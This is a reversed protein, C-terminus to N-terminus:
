WWECHLTGNKWGPKDQNDKWIQDLSYQQFIHPSWRNGRKKVRILLCSFTRWPRICGFIKRTLIQCTRCILHCNLMPTKSINKCWNCLKPVGMIRTCSESTRWNQTNGILISGSFRWSKHGSNARNTLGPPGGLIFKSFESRWAELHPLEGEMKLVDQNM